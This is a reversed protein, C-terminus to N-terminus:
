DHSLGGERQHQHHRLCTPPRRLLRIVFRASGGRSEVDLRGQMARVLERAEYAGIGFGGPQLEFPKFLRTRVFDASM